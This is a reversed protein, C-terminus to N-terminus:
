QIKRKKVAFVVYEGQEIRITVENTGKEKFAAEIKKAQEQEFSPVM